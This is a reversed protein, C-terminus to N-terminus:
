GRSATLAPKSTRIKKYFTILENGISLNNFHEEAFKAAQLGVADFFRKNEVCHTIAEIFENATDAYLIEEGHKAKIGEAGIKTSVVTKGLTMAEIIKIRLGSGSRLPVIMIAKSNMFDVADDVEGLVRVGKQNLKFYKAPTNRGAIYFKLEPFRHFLTPWVDKLFWDIGEQNPMWDLAGLHFVSPFEIPERDMVLKCENIGTLAVHMPLKCGLQKFYAADKDSIPIMADYDNLHQIEFKKMRKALLGLYQKKLPNREILAMREWIEFEVNHARMVVPVKTFTRIAEVYPALFLGELQILDFKQRKILWKLKTIFEKCYFRQINYSKKSFLNFFAHHAKIDTNLYVDHYTALAALEPPLSKTDYFHKKTNIALVTVEHGLDSFAKTLSNIAIIEGDKPPWPFKKCVQLIKM